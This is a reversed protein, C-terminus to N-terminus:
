YFRLNDVAIAYPGPQLMYNPPPYNMQPQISLQLINQGTLPVCSQGSGIGPTFASWPLQVNAWTGPDAPISLEVSANKCDSASANNCLGNDGTPTTDLMGVSVGVRRTPSVGKISFQVGQYRDANVCTRTTGNPPFYLLLLGGWHMANTDAIQLAYGSGGEGAVMETTIVSTGGNMDSGDGIHLIAGLVADTAPPKGNVYYVYSGAATGAAYDDFNAITPASVAPCQGTDAPLPAAVGCQNFASGGLGGGVIGARGGSGSDNAGQPAGDGCAAVTSAALALLVHAKVDVVSPAV